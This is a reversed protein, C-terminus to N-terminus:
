PPVTVHNEKAWQAVLGKPWFNQNAFWALGLIAACGLAGLLVEAWMPRLTFGFRLRQRRSYARLGIVAICGVVGVVWTLTGGLSGQAGGGILQFSPDLGSV